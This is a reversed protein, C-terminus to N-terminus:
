VVSVSERISGINGIAIYYEERLFHSLWTKPRPPTQGATIHSVTVLLRAADSYITTFLLTSKPCIFGARGEISITMMKVIM